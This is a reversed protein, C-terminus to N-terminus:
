SPSGENFGNFFGTTEELTENLRRGYRRPLPRQRRNSPTQSSSGKRKQSCHAHEDSPIEVASLRSM